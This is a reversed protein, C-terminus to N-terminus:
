HQMLLVAEKHKRKRAVDIPTRGEGDKITTSAGYLLLLQIAGTKNFKASWHLATWGFRNQKNLNAGRQLLEHIVGTKSNYTALQLATRGIVDVIDVPMGEDLLRVVKSVDGNRAAFTFNEVLQPDIEISSIFTRIFCNGRHSDRTWWESQEIM